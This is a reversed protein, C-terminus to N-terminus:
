DNKDQEKKLEKKVLFSTLILTVITVIIIFIIAKSEEKFYIGKFIIKIKDM